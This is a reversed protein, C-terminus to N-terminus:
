ACNVTSIIGDSKTASISEAVNESHNTPASNVKFAAPLESGSLEAVTRENWHDQENTEPIKKLKIHGCVLVYEYACM